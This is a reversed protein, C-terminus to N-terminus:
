FSLLRLEVLDDVEEFEHVADGNPLRLSFVLTASEASHEGYFLGVYRFTHSLVLNFTVHSRSGFVDGTGVRRAEHVHLANCLLLVFRYFEYM